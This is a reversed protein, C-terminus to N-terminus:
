INLESEILIICKAKLYYVKSMSSFSYLRNFNVSGFMLRKVATFLSGCDKIKVKLIKYFRDM